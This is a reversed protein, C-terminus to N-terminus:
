LMIPINDIWSKSMPTNIRATGLLRLSSMGRVVSKAFGCIPTSIWRPRLIAPLTPLIKSLPLSFRFLINIQKQRTLHSHQTHPSTAITECKCIIQLQLLNAVAFLKCYCFIQLLLHNTFAFLKCICFVQLHLLNAIAFPKCYSYFYNFTLSFWFYITSHEVLDFYITSHEVLDFIM